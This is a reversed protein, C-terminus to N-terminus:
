LGHIAYSVMTFASGSRSITREPIKKSNKEFIAYLQRYILPDCTDRFENLLMFLEIARFLNNKIAEMQYPIAEKNESYALMCSNRIYPWKYPEAEPHAEPLIKSFKLINEYTKQYFGSVAKTDEEYIQVTYQKSYPIYEDESDSKIYEAKRIAIDILYEGEPLVFSYWRTLLIRHEYIAGPVLTVDLTNADYIPLPEDIHKKVQNM